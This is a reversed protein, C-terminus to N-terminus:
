QNQAVHQPGQYPESYDPVNMQYLRWLHDIEHVREKGDPGKQTRIPDWGFVAASEARDTVTVAVFEYLKGDIKLRIRPDRAVWRTWAKDYPFTVGMRSPDTHGHLYLYGNYFRGCGLTISHRTFFPTRVEVQCSNLAGTGKNRYREDAFSWDKIPERVVEGDLKTGPLAIWNYRGWPTWRYSLFEEGRPDLYEPELGVVNIVFYAVAVIGVLVAGAIKLTKKINM